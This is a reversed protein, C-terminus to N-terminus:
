DIYRNQYEQLESQVERSIDLTQVPIFNLHRLVQNKIPIETRQSFYFVNQSISYMKLFVMKRFCTFTEMM